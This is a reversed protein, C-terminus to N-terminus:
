SKFKCLQVSGSVIVFAQAPSQAVGGVTSEGSVCKQLARVCDHKKRDVYTIMLGCSRRCRVERFKCAAEHAALGGKLLVEGCNKFQCTVQQYACDRAHADYQELTVTAACGTTHNVCRMKLRNIIGQILPMVPETSVISRRCTPCTPCTALWTTICVRCFVHRCPSEVPTDLVSKCICCVLDPDPAPDFLDIDYRSM